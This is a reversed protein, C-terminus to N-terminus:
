TFSCEKLLKLILIPVNRGSPLVLSLFRFNEIYKKWFIYIQSNIKDNLFVWRQIKNKFLILYKADVRMKLNQLRETSDYELFPTTFSNNTQRSSEPIWLFIWFVSPNKRPPPFKGKLLPFILFYLLKALNELIFAFFLWVLRFNQFEGGFSSEEKKFSNTILKWHTDYTDINARHYSTNDSCTLRLVINPTISHIHGTTHIRRTDQITYLYM